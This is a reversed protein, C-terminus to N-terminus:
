KNRTVLSRWTTARIRIREVHVCYKFITRTLIPDAFAFQYLDVIAVHLGAVPDFERAHQEVGVAGVQAPWGSTSPM